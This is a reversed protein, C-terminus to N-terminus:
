WTDCHEEGTNCLKAFLSSLYETNVMEEETILELTGNEDCIYKCKNSPFTFDDYSGGGNRTIGM